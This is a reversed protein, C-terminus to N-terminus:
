TNLWVVPLGTYSHVQVKYEKSIDQKKLLLLVGKRFDVISSKEVYRESDIICTDADYIIHPVLKKSDLLQPIWCEILTDGIINCNIDKDLISNDSSLFSFEKLDLILPTEDNDIVTIESSCSLLLCLTLFASIRFRM